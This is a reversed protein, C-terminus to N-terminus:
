RTTRPAARSATTQAAGGLLEAHLRQVAPSPATGLEDRLRQRLEEYARMAEAVNGERRLAEMLLCYGSERYPALGILRRATGKAVEGEPGGLALSLKTDAELARILIDEMERRLEDIWPAREGRMFPRESIYRATVTPAYADWWRERTLLSEAEHISARACEVDIFAEAPLCLRIEQRGELTEEGALKRLKSLLASLAIDPASPLKEPWLADMLEQRSAARHPQVALYAFLARGQRGPM